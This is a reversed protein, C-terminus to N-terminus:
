REFHWMNNNQTNVYPIPKKNFVKVRVGNNPTAGEPLKRWRSPGRYNASVYIGTDEWFIKEGFENIIIEEVSNKNM